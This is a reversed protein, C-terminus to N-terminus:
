IILIINNNNYVKNFYLRVKEHLWQPLLAKIRHLLPLVAGVFPLAIQTAHTHGAVKEFSSFKTTLIAV